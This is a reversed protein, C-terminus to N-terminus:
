IFVEKRQNYKYLGKGIKMTISVSGKMPMVKESRESIARPKEGFKNTEGKGSKKPGKGRHKEKSTQIKHGVNVIDSTSLSGRSFHTPPM